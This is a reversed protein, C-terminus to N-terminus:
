SEQEGLRQNRGRYKPPLCDLYPMLAQQRAFRDSLDSRQLVADVDAQRQATQPHEIHNKEGYGRWGPPMEMAMVSLEEYDLSPQTSDADPWTALTRVLWDRDNRLPFDERFHAGRSEERRLAGLAVCLALKLMKQVRYATVLEPNAGRLQSRVGIRRSRALLSQLDTVAQSLREGHRFIGVKDTMTQQMERMLEFANENGRGDCLGSLYREQQKWSQELLASSFSCDSDSSDCYDAIYEGVLMGAVVTEAM